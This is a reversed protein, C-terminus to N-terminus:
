PELLLRLVQGHESTAWLSGFAVTADGSSLDADIRDIIALTMPDIRVLFPHVARVWIQGGTATVGGGLAVAGGTAVEGVVDGSAPDITVVTTEDPGATSGEEALLTVWISADDVAAWGAGDIGETWIDVENTTADIRLLQDDTPATVWLADFGFAMTGGTAPLPITASVANTIPDVRVVTDPVVGTTAFAWISSAGYPLRSVAVAAPLAVEAAVQNTEPDIRLLGDPGCVWVAEPSVGIGQCKRGPLEISAIVRNTEPDIRHVSPVTGDNMLPGDLSLVWLSGFAETPMDPAGGIEIEALTRDTLGPVSPQVSSAASATSGVTPEPSAIASPTASVGAADAGTDCAAAASVAVVLIALPRTAHHRRMARAGPSANSRMTVDPDRMSMPPVVSADDPNDGHAGSVEHAVIRDM